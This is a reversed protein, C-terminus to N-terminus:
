TLTQDDPVFTNKRVFDGSSADKSVTSTYTFDHKVGDVTAVRTLTKAERDISVDVSRSVSEGDPGTVTGHKTYGDDTREIQGHRSVTEGNAATLTVDRSLTGSDTDYGFTVTRERTGRPTTASVTYTFGNDTRSADLQRQPGALSSEFDAVHQALQDPNVQYAGSAIQQKIHDIRAGDVHPANAVAAELRQMLRASDTLTVKDTAASQSGAQAQGGVLANAVPRAQAPQLATQRLGSIENAM